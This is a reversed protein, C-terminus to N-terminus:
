FFFSLSIFLAGIGATGGAAIRMKRNEEALEAQDRLQSRNLPTAAAKAPKRLTLAYLGAGMLLFGIGLAILAPGRM